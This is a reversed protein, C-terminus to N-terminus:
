DNTYEASEILCELWDLLGLGNYRLYHAQLSSYIARTIVLDKNSYIMEGNFYIRSKDRVRGKKLRLM